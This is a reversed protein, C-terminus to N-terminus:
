GHYLSSTAVLIPYECDKVNDWKVTYFTRNSFMEGVAHPQRKIFDYLDQTKIVAGCMFHSGSFWSQITFYPYLSGNKISTIRKQYESKIGGYLEGRITFEQYIKPKEPRVFRIRSAVTYISNNKDKILWDIGSYLDLWKFLADNKSEAQFYEFNSMGLNNLTDITYSSSIFNNM